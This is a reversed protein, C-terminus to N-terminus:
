IQYTNGKKIIKNLMLAKQITKKTFYKSLEAHTCHPHARVFARIDTPEASRDIEPVRTETVKAPQIVPAPVNVLEAGFSSNAKNVPKKKPKPKSSIGKSKETQGVPLDPVVVSQVPPVEPTIDAPNNEVPEEEWDDENESYDLNDEIDDADVELEESNNEFGFSEDNWDNDEDEDSFDDEESSYGFADEETYEDVSDTDEGLDFEDSDETDEQYNESTVVEQEDSSFENYDEEFYEEAIYDEYYDDEPTEIVSDFEDVPEEEQVALTSLGSPIDDIPELDSFDDEIDDQSNDVDDLEDELPKEVLTAEYSEYEVDENSKDATAWEDESIDMPVYPAEEVTGFTSEVESVDGIFETISNENSISGEQILYEDYGEESDSFEIEEEEEALVLEQQYQIIFEPTVLKSLSVPKNHLDRQRSELYEAKVCERIEEVSLCDQILTGYVTLDLMLESKSAFNCPVLPM